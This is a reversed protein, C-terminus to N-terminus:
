FVLMFILSLILILIKLIGSGLEPNKPFFKRLIKDTKATLGVYFFPKKLGIKHVIGAYLSWFLSLIFPVYEIGWVLWATCSIYIFIMAGVIHWRTEISTNLPDSESTKDDLLLLGNYLGLLIVGIFGWFIPIM